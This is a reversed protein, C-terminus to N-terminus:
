FFMFCNILTQIALSLSLKETDAVTICNSWCLCYELLLLVMKFKLRRKWNNYQLWLTIKKEKKMTLRNEAEILCYVSFSTLALETFISKLDLVFFPLIVSVNTSSIYLVSVIKHGGGVGNPLLGYLSTLLRLYFATRM